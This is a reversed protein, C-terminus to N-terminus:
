EVAEFEGNENDEEYLQYADKIKRIIDMSDYPNDAIRQFEEM